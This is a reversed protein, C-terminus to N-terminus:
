FWILNAIKWHLELFFYIEMVVFHWLSGSFFHSIESTKILRPWCPDHFYDFKCSLHIRISLIIFTSMRKLFVSTSYVCDAHVYQCFSIKLAQKFRTSKEHKCISRSYTRTNLDLIKECMCFFILIKKWHWQM